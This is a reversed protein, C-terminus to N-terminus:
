RSGHPTWFSQGRRDELLPYLADSKRRCREHLVALFGLALAPKLRPVKALWWSCSEEVQGTEGQSARTRGGDRSFGHVMGRMRERRSEWRGVKGGECVSQVARDVDQLSDM